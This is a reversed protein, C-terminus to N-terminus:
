LDMRSNQVVRGLDTLTHGNKTHVHTNYTIQWFLSGLAKFFIIFIIHIAIAKSPFITNMTM